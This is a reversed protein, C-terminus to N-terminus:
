SVTILWANSNGGGPPPNFVSVKITNAVSLETTELRVELKGEANLHAARGIGNIRVVSSSNYNEGTVLIRAEDTGVEFDIPYVNEITPVPNDLKDGRSDGSETRFLNDFIERMKDIAQKSFMGSLGCIAAIGFPSLDTANGGGALLGGRILFYVLVALIMGIPVRLVFWWVWSSSLRRNGVYSAFSTACHIYSGFAGAVMVVLLLRLEVSVSNAFVFGFLTITPDWSDPAIVGPWTALLFLGIVIAALLLYIGLFLTGFFGLIPNPGVPGLSSAAGDLNPSASETSNPTSDAM